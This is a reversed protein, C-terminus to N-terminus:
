DTWISNSLDFLSDLYVTWNTQTSICIFWLKMNGACHGTSNPHADLERLQESFGVAALRATRLRLFAFRGLAVMSWVENVSKAIQLPVREIETM